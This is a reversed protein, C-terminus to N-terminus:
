GASWTLNRGSAALSASVRLELLLAVRPCPVKLAQAEILPGSKM